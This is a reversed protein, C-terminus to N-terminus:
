GQEFMPKCGGNTRSNNAMRFRIAIVGGNMASARVAEKADHWFPRLPPDARELAPIVSGFM